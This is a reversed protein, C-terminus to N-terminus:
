PRLRSIGALEMCPRSHTSAHDVPYVSPMGGAFTECFSIRGGEHLAFGNGPLLDAEPDILRQGLVGDARHHHQLQVYEAQVPHAGLRGYLIDVVVQQLGVLAVHGVVRNRREAQMRKPSHYELGPLPTDWGVCM